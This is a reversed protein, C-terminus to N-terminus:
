VFEKIISRAQNVYYGGFLNVHVLVPYLQYLQKRRQFGPNIPLIEAYAKYFSPNFGGFLYTFALEMERNSYYVAPDWIGVNGQSDSFINGSWLDGHILVPDEKPFIDEWNKASHELLAVEEIPFHHLDVAKKLQPFIRMEWFFESFSSRYDNKQPLLGIYNDHDAGFHSFVTKHLQAIGFGLNSFDSDLLGKTEIFELALFSLGGDLVGYDLVTPIKLDLAHHKLMKLGIAEKEFMDAPARGNYKVFISGNKLFDIRLAQNIDGGSVGQYAIIKDNFREELASFLANKM